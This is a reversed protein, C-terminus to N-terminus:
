AEGVCKKRYFIFYYTNFTTHSTNIFSPLFLPTPVYSILLLSHLFLLPLSSSLSLYFLIFLYFSTLSFALILHSISFSNSIMCILSPSYLIFVGRTHHYKLSHRQYILVSVSSCAISSTLLKLKMEFFHPFVGILYHFTFHLCSFIIFPLFSSIHCSFTM